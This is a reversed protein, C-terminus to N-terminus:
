LGCLSSNPKDECSQLILQLTSVRAQKVTSKAEAWFTARQAQSNMGRISVTYTGAPLASILVGEAVPDSTSAGAAAGPQTPGAPKTDLSSLDCPYEDVTVQNSFADWVTVGVVDVGNYGCLRGNQFWWVLDISGPKQALAVKPAVNQTNARVDVAPIVGDYTPYDGNDPWGALDVRYRGEPVARFLYSGVQCAVSASEVPGSTDSLTVEITALGSQTCTSGGIMWSVTLPGTPAITSGGGCSIAGASLALATTLVKLTRMANM